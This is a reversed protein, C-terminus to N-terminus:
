FSYGFTVGIGAYPQYGQPTIGYGGQVGLTVGWRKRERVTQTTNVYVTRPYVEISKLRAKYGEVVARYDESSYTREEIPLAVRVTDRITDREIVPVNVPVDIYETRVVTQLVEKPYEVRVTDRVVVTDREIRMDAAPKVTARGLFFAGALGLLVIICGLATVLRNRDASM